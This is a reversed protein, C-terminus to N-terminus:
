GIGAEEGVAVPEPADGTPGGDGGPIEARAIAADLRHATLPAHDDLLNFHDGPLDVVALAPAVRRWAATQTAALAGGAGSRFLVVRPHEYPEPAYARLAEVHAEVLGISRRVDGGALHQVSRGRRALRELALTVIEEQSRDGLGAPLEIEEPPIGTLTSVLHTWWTEQHSLDVTGEDWLHSDLLAVLSVNQGRARLRRAMEFAVVGGFSWGGLLYPGAPQGAVVERLYLEALASVDRLPTEGAALGHARLGVV